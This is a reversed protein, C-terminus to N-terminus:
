LKIRTGTIYGTYFSGNKYILMEGTQDNGIGADVGLIKNNFRSNIDESTTHGVVIHKKNYYDLIADLNSESFDTDTFYGRYWIPGNNQVLFMLEKTEDDATVEKGTISNSSIKGLDPVTSNAEDPTRDNNQGLLMQEKNKERLVKGIIKESFLMNIKQFKYKKQFLEPSIGGHVFIIDNITIVVPKSRLWNGLVSNKPYLDFYKTDSIAEVKKYKENIFILNEALTMIEHNGLLVHVMGGAEVAQKELGFLHWLVETVMDGRDFIDGLVVLHGKGFKWHLDNDIIGMAKLLKIYTNYEGHIDSIVGISDVMNYSQSHNLNKLYNVSLDEYTCMLNFRNKIEIFNEPTINDEMLFGNKISKAQLKHKVNFVYPGDNISDTLRSESHCIAAPNLILIFSIILYFLLRKM